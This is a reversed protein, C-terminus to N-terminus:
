LSMFTATVLWYTEFVALISIKFVIV